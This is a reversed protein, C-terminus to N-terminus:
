RPSSAAAPAAPTTPGYAEGAVTLGAASLKTANRAGVGKVRAALDAWNKFAGKQREDLIAQALGTGVGRLSELEARSATNAETAAAASCFLVAAMAATIWHAKM